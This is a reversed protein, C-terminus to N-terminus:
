TTEKGIAAKATAILLVISFDSDLEGIDESLAIFKEVIGVLKVRKAESAALKDLLTEILLEDKTKYSM